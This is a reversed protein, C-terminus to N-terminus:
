RPSRGLAALLKPSATEFNRRIRDWRARTLGDPWLAEADAFYTLARLVGYLDAESVAFRRVYARAAALLTVGGSTVIEDLDWFDRRIGRRAIAALKMTALDLLGALPFGGPGATPKALLPHPYRVLDIPGDPTRISVAVDSAGLVGADAVTALLARQPAELSTTPSATFLDLDRSRRHGLHAAIGTGGALYFGRLAPLRNLQDLTRRQAPSVGKPRGM